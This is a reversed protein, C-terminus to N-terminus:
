LRGAGSRRISLQRPRKRGEDDLDSWERKVDRTLFERGENEKTYHHDALGTGRVDAQLVAYGQQVWDIPDPSAFGTLRSCNLKRFKVGSLHMFFNAVRDPHRDKGYPTVSLTVPHPGAAAPRYLNSFLRVADHMPAALDREETM